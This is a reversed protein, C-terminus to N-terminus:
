AGSRGNRNKVGYRASRLAAPVKFVTQLYHLFAPLEGVLKAKFNAFEHPETMAPFTAPRIKLLLFKERVSDEMPPLVMLDQP